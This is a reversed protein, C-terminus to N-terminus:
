GLTHAHSLSFYLPKTYIQRHTQTHAHAHSLSFTHTHIHSVYTNSRTHTKALTHTPTLTHYHSLYVSLSHTDSFDFHLAFMKVYMTFFYGINIFFYVINM